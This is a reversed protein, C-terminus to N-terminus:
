PSSLSLIHNSTIAYVFRKHKPTIHGFSYTNLVPIFYAFILKVVSVLAKQISPCGALLIFSTLRWAKTWCTLYIINDYPFKSMM